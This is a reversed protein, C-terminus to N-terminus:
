IDISSYGYYAPSLPALHCFIKSLLEILQHQLLLVTQDELTYELIVSLSEKLNCRTAPKLKQNM